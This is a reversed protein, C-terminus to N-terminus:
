STGQGSGKTASATYAFGYYVEELSMNGLHRGLSEWPHRDALDLSVGFPRVTPLLLRALRASRGSPMKFDAIVWTGHPALSAAGRRIVEDFQPVLTLAFTSLIGNVSEPFEFEAADGLVLEVNSWGRRMVRKEAQGLMADTLDVGIVRGEPGVQRQLLDFNLGTGCGIEVVTDGPALDLAHIARRRVRYERFGILYYLNATLDYWKARRRYLSKIEHRRLAM